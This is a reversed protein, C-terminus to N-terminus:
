VTSITAPSSAGIEARRRLRPRKDHGSVSSTNSPDTHLTPKSVEFISDKEIITAETDECSVVWGITGMYAGTRVKVIDGVIFHKKVDTSLLQIVNQEEPDAGSPLLFVTSDNVVELHGYLGKQQGAVVRVRDGPTLSDRANKDLVASIHEVNISSCHSFQRLEDETPTALEQVM